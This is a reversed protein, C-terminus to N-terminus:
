LVFIYIILVTLLSASLTHLANVAHKPLWQMRFSCLFTLTSLICYATLVTILTVVFDLLIFSPSLDAVLSFNM